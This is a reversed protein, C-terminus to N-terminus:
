GIPSRIVSHETWLHGAAQHSVCVSMVTEIVFGDSVSVVKASVAEGFRDARKKLKELDDTGNKQATGTAPAAAAASGFKALRAAKREEPTLIKLNSLKDSAAVGGLKEARKALRQRRSSPM